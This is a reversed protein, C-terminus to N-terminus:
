IKSFLRTWRQVFKEGYEKAEQKTSSARLMHRGQIAIIYRKPHYAGGFSGGITKIEFKM